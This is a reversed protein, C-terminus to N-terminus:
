RMWAPLTVGSAFAQAAADFMPTERLGTAQFVILAGADPGRRDRLHCARMFQRMLMPGVLKGDAGAAPDMTGSSRLDLCPRGDVTVAKVDNITFHMGKPTSSAVIQRVQMEFTQEDKWPAIGVDRVMATLFVKDNPDPRAFVVGGSSCRQVTWSDFGLPAMVTLGTATSYRSGVNARSGAVLDLGKTACITAPAAQSAPAQSVPPPVVFTSTTNGQAFATQSATAAWLTLSYVWTPVNVFSKM